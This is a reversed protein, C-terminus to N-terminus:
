KSTAAAIHDTASTASQNALAHTVCADFAQAADCPCWCKYQETLMASVSWSAVSGFGFQANAMLWEWKRYGEFYRGHAEQQFALQAELMEIRSEKLKAEVLMRTLVLIDRNLNAVEAELNVANM